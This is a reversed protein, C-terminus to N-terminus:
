KCKGRCSGDKKFCYIKKDIKKCKSYIMTGDNNFYYWKEKYKLWGTKMKGNSEFYYWNNNGKYNLKKWGIQMEGVSNFYYWNNNIKQWGTQMEGVHNFYYYNKKSGYALNELKNIIPMGNRMYYWVTKSENNIKNVKVPTITLKKWNYSYTRKFKLKITSSIGDDDVISYGNKNFIARVSDYSYGTVYVNSKYKENLYSLMYLKIDSSAAVSSNSVIVDKPKVNDAFEKSTASSYGHHGIKLIKVKGVKLRRDDETEMDSSLLTKTKSPIHTVLEVISNKNDGHTMGYGKNKPNGLYKEDQYVTSTNLLKINFNGVKFKINNRNTVDILKAGKRYLANISRDHYEKNQWDPHWVDDTTMTYKRYYYKTNKTAYKEIIENMGGIHDSHNHTAVIYDLNNIKLKHLYEKVHGVSDHPNSVAQKSGDSLPNSADVLCTIGKSRILVADSSGVSIFDIIDNQSNSLTLGKLKSYNNKSILNISGMLILTIVLTFSFMIMLISKQKLKKDALKPRGVRRKEKM